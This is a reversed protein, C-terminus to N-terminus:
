RNKGRWQIRLSQSVTVMSPLRTSINWHQLPFFFKGMYRYNYKYTLKILIIIISAMLSCSDHRKGWFLYLITLGCYIGCNVSFTFLLKRVFNLAILGVWDGVKTSVKNCNPCSPSCFTLTVVFKVIEAPGKTNFCFTFHPRKWCPYFLECTLYFRGYVM